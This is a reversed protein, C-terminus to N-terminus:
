DNRTEDDKRRFACGTHKCDKCLRIESDTEGYPEDPKRFGTECPPRMNCSEILGM